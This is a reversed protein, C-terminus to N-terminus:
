ESAIEPTTVGNTVIFHPSYRMTGDVNLSPISTDNRISINQVSAPNLTWGRAHTLNWTLFSSSLYFYVAPARLVPPPPAHPIRQSTQPHEQLPQSQPQELHDM